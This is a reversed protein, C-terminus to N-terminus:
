DLWWGLIAELGYAVNDNHSAHPLSSAATYSHRDSAALLSEAIGQPELSPFPFSHPLADVFQAISPIDHWAIRLNRNGFRLAELVSLPAGEYRSAFVAVELSPHRLLVRPLLDDFTRIATVSSEPLDAIAADILEVYKESALEQPMLLVLHWDEPVDVHDLFSAFAPVLADFGKQANCRGWSFIIRKHSPIGWSSLASEQVEPAQEPVQFSRAPIANVFPALQRPQCGYQEVLMDRFYPGIYGFRDQPHRAMNEFAEHEWTKRRSEISDAFAHGLSHAVYVIQVNSCDELFARVGLFMLGHVLVTVRDHQTSLERIAGALSKSMDRWRGPDSHSWIGSLSSSDPGDIWILGGRRSRCAREVTAHVAESYDASEPSLYPSIAYMSWNSTGLVDVRHDIEDLEEFFWHVVSGLGSQLTVLGDVAAVVLAHSGPVGVAM